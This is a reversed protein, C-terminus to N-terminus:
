KTSEKGSGGCDICPIKVAYRWTYGRGDCNLCTPELPCVNVVEGDPQADVERPREAIPAGAVAREMELKDACTKGRECTPCEGLKFWGCWCRQEPPIQSLSRVHDLQDDNLYHDYLSM